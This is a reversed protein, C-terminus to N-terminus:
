WMLSSGVNVADMDIESAVYKEVVFGLEKLVLLGPPLHVMLCVIVGMRYEVDTPSVVQPLAM